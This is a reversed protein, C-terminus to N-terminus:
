DVKLTYRFRDINRNERNPNGVEVPVASSNQQRCFPGVNRVGGLTNFDIAIVGQTSHAPAVVLSPETLSDPRGVVPTTRNRSQRNSLEKDSGVYNRVGFPSPGRYVVSDAHRLKM